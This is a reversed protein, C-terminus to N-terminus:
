AGDVEIVDEPDSAAAAHDACYNRWGDRDGGRFDSVWGRGHASRAIDSVRAGLAGIIGRSCGEGDCALASRYSM